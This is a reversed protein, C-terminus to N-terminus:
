SKCKRHMNRIEELRQRKKRRAQASQREIQRGIYIGIAITLPIYILHALTM